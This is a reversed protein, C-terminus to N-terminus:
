GIDDIINNSREKRKSKFGSYWLSCALVFTIVTAVVMSTLLPGRKEGLVLKSFESQYLSYARYGLYISTITLLVAITLKVKTSM